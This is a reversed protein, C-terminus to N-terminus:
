ARVGAKQGKRTIKKLTQNQHNQLSNTAFSKKEHKEVSLFFAGVTLELSKQLLDTLISGDFYIRYFLDM